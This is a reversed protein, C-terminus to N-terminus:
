YQYNNTINISIYNTTLLLLNFIEISIFINHLQVTFQLQLQVQLYAYSIYSMVVIDTNWHLSSMVYYIQYVM